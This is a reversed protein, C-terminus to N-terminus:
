CLSSPFIDNSRFFTCAGFNVCNWGSKEKSNFHEVVYKCFSGGSLFSNGTREQSGHKDQRKSVASTSLIRVLLTHLRTCVMTNPVPDPPVLCLHCSLSTHGRPGAWPYTLWRTGVDSQVSRLVYMSVSPRGVRYRSIAFCFNWNRLNIKRQSDNQYTGLNLVLEFM